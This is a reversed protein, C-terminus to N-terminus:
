QRPSEGLDTTLHWNSDIIQPSHTAIVVPVNKLQIIEMLDRLFEKQWAIHLSIEPEDILVLANEKAKFILEYLLVVQHQEGSSLQTLKLPTGQETVFSFGSEADINITKFTLRKENLIRSFLELKRYIDDYAALKERTDQVYLTLVRTDGSQIEDPNFPFAPLYQDSVLINLSSLAARKEQLDDLAIRLSEVDMPIVSSDKRLLRSPFTTDLKQSVHSNTYGSERILTALEEAYKEITDIPDRRKRPRPGSIADRLLLRQDRVFHAELANSFDLYWEPLAKTTYVGPLYEGYVQVM